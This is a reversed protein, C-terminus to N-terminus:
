MLILRIPYYLDNAKIDEYKTWKNSQPEIIWITRNNDVMINFAHKASWAIGFAFSKLSESWYGMLAFSFNDCDHDEQVWKKYQVATEESFKSASETNTLNLSEDSIYVDKGVIKLLTYLEVININGLPTPFDLQKRTKVRELSAKLDSIEQDKAEIEDAFLRNYLSKVIPRLIDM